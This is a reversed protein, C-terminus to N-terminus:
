PRGQCSHPPLSLSRRRRDPAGAPAPGPSAGRPEQYTNQPRQSRPSLFTVETNGPAPAWNMCPKGLVKSAGLSPHTQAPLTNTLPQSSVQKERNGRTRSSRVRFIQSQGPVEKLPAVSETGHASLGWHGPISKPTTHPSCAYKPLVSSLLHAQPGASFPPM